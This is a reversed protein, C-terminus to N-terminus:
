RASEVAGSGTGEHTNASPCGKGLPQLSYSGRAVSNISPFPPVRFTKMGKWLKVTINGKLAVNRDNLESPKAMTVNETAPEGDPAM